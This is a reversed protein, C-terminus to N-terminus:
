FRGRMAAWLLRIHRRLPASPAQAAWPDFGSLEMRALHLDALALPLLAPLLARQVRHQRAQRLKERATRGLETLVQLVRGDPNERYVQEPALGQQALMDAPLLVRQQAAHFPVARLLGIMGYAQGATQSLSRDMQGGLAEAALRFLPANTAEAYALMAQLDTVPAAELDRERADILLRFDAEQWGAAGAKALGEAVPHRRPKGERVGTITERWWELRIRGLMPESVQEATRAIELQFTYLAHLGPRRADPAFLATLWRDPDHRRCETENPDAPPKQM